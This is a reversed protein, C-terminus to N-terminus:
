QTPLLLSAQVVTVVLNGLAVQIQVAVEVAEALTLLEVPQQRLILATEVAVQAVLEMQALCESQVVVVVV